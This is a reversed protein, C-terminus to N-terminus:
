LGHADDRQPYVRQSGRCHGHVDAPPSLFSLPFFSSLFLSLSLGSISDGRVQEFPGIWETTDTRLNIVPRTMRAPSSFLYLASPTLSPKPPM